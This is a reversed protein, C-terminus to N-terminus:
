EVGHEIMYLIKNWSLQTWTSMDDVGGLFFDYFRDTLFMSKDAYKSYFRSFVLSEGLRGLFLLTSCDIIDKKEIRVEGYFELYINYLDDVPVYWDSFASVYDLNLEYKTVADGGTDATNHAEGYNGNFNVFAM